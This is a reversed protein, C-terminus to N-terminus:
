TEVLQINSNIHKLDLPNRLQKNFKQLSRYGELTHPLGGLGIAVWRQYERFEDDSLEILEKPKIISDIKSSKQLHAAQGFAELAMCSILLGWFFTKM